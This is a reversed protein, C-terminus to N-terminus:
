ANGPLAKDRINRRSANQVYAPYRSTFRIAGFLAVLTVGVGVRLPINPLNMMVLDAAVMATFALAWAATIVYNTRLFGPQTWSEQPTKEKAYQLTFPRRIAMSILVVLLLGLDVYLRVRLVAWHAGALATYIGLGGFLLASGIELVKASQHRLLLDRLLILVSATAAAILSITPSTIRGLVAFILFPAFALLINM